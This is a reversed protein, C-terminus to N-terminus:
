PQRARDIAEGVRRVADGMLCEPCPEQRVAVTCLGDDLVDVIDISGTDACRPCAPESM